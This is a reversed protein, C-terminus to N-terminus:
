FIEKQLPEKEDENYLDHIVPMGKLEARINEMALFVWEHKKLPVAFEKGESTRTYYHIIPLTSDILLAKIKENEEFKCRLAVIIREKFDDPYVKKHETLKQGLKKAEAGHTFRLSEDGTILWYWYGEVSDFPGDQDHIFPSHEFNSLMVGLETRGRSYANIHTIGDQNCDIM